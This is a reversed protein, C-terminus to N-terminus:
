IAATNVILTVDGRYQCMSVPQFDPYRLGELEWLSGPAAPPNCGAMAGGSGGLGGGGSGGAGVTGATVGVTSAVTSTTSSATSGAQSPAGGHGSGGTGSGGASSTTARVGQSSCAAGLSVAALVTAAGLKSGDLRAM